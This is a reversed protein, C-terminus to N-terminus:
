GASTPRRVPGPDVRTLFVSNPDPAYTGFPGCPEFGHRAYLRRAPEFFAMSGTELSLRVHGREEAEALLHALLRSAIGRSRHCASVRMSKIEAHGEELQKLAGCGVLEGDCRVSWFTLDPAMLGAPDLAHSSGPPSVSRMEALHERLFAEIQPDSPDDEAITLHTSM